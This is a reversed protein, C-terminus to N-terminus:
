LRDQTQVGSTGEAQRKQALIQPDSPNLGSAYVPLTELPAGGLLRYLPLDAKRAALDWLAIDIGALAQALPGPEGTQIALIELNKSCELFAQEPTEFTRGILSPGVVENVLRTRYEAGVVPWNCWVEGFGVTGDDDIVRVIVCPRDRMIGFSAALPEKIPARYTQAEIKVPKIAPVM